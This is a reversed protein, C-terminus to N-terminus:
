STEIEIMEDRYVSFLVAKVVAINLSECRSVFDLLVTTNRKIRTRWYSENEDQFYGVCVKFKQILDFCQAQSTTPHYHEYFVDNWRRMVKGDELYVDFEQAVAVAYDLQENTAEDIHIKPM